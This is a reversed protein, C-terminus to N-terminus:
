QDTSLPQRVLDNELFYELTFRADRLQSTNDSTREEVEFDGENFPRYFHENASTYPLQEYTEGAAAALEAMSYDRPGLLVAVTKGTFGPSLLHYAAVRAVEYSAIYPLKLDPAYPTHLGWNLNEYFNACRLHLIPVHALKNLEQEFAVLRTPAGAKAIISNSINVIHKVRSAQLLKGLRAATAAPNALHEDPVTLFLTTTNEFAQQLFLDDAFDGALITAKNEFQQLRARNRGAVAVTAGAALLEHAIKGGINGGAGLVLIFDNKM